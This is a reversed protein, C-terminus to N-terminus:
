SLMVHSQLMLSDNCCFTDKEVQTQYNKNQLTEIKLKAVEM